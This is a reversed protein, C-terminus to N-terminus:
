LRCQYRAKLGPCRIEVDVASLERAALYAAEEGHHRLGRAQQEEGACEEAHNRDDAASIGVIPCLPGAPPPPIGALGAAIPRFVDKNARTELPSPGLFGTVNRVGAARIKPIDRRPFSAAPRM